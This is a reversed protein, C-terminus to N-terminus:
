NCGDHLVMVNMKPFYGKHEIFRVSRIVFCTYKKQANASKLM